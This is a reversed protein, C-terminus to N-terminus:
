VTEQEGLEKIFDEPVSPNLEILEETSYMEPQVIGYKRFQERAWEEFDSRTRFGAM